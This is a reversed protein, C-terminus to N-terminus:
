FWRPHDRPLVHPVIHTYLTPHYPDIPLFADVSKVISLNKINSFCLDLRANLFNTVRNCQRLGHFNLLETLYEAAEIENRLTNCATTTKIISSSDFYWDCHPLNYDGFLLIDDVAHCHDRYIANSSPPIYAAGVLNSSGLGIKVFLHEVNIAATELLTCSFTNKVAM